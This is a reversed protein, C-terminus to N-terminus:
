LLLKLGEVKQLGDYIAMVQKASQVNVDLTLSMHRGGATNRISHEVESVGSVEARVAALVRGEFDDKADGIVKIRFISPFSHTSELLEVPDQKQDM